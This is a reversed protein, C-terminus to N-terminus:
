HHQRLHEDLKGETRALIGLMEATRDNLADLRTGFADLRSGFTDSQTDFRNGIKEIQADLRHEISESQIDLRNGIRTIDSKLWGLMLLLLGGVIGTVVAEIM